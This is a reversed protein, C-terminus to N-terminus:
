SGPRAARRPASSPGRDARPQLLTVVGIVPGLVAPVWLWSSGWPEDLPQGAALAIAGCLVPYALLPLAWKTIGARRAAIVVGIWAAAAVWLGGLEDVAWEQLAYVGWAVVLVGWIVPAVSGRLVTWAAVAISAILLVAFATASLTSALLWAVAAVAGGILGGRMAARAVRAARERKTAPAQTPVDALISV